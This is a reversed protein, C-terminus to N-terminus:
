RAPVGEVQVPIMVFGERDVFRDEDEKFLRSVEPDSMIRNLEDFAAQDALVWESICDHDWDKPGFGGDSRRPDGGFWATAAYNRRYEVFLHGLHKMALPVHSTEFHERFQEHSMGPKRRLFWIVKFM